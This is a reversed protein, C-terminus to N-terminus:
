PEVTAPRPADPWDIQPLKLLPIQGMRLTRDHLELPVTVTPSGGQSPVVAMLSLVAGAARAAMPALLHADSLAQLAAGYGVLHLRAAGTPQLAADLSLTTEGDAGLPGWGLAFRTVTLAGGGARWATAAALASQGRVPPPGTMAGEITFSAIHDGFPPQPAPPPPFAIAEASLRGAVGTGANNPGFLGELLGVSVGSDLRLGAADLGVQHLPDALAASLVFREATGSLRVQPGVRLRQTGEVRVTALRPEPLGVRLVVRTATWVAGGPALAPLGSLSFGPLTLEAAFPWGGGQPAEHTVAWGAAAANAEWAALEARMRGVAWRWVVASGGGILILLAALVILLRRM